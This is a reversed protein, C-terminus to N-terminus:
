VMQDIGPRERDARLTLDRAGLVLLDYLATVFVQQPDANTRDRLVLAAAAPVQHVTSVLRLSSGLARSRWRARPIRRM